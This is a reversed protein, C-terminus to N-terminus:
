HEKWQIAGDSATMSVFDWVGCHVLQKELVGSDVRVLNWRIFVNAFKRLLELVLVTAQNNGGLETIELSYLSLQVTPKRLLHAIDSGHPHLDSQISDIGDLESNTDPVNAQVLSEDVVMILKVLVADHTTLEPNHHLRRQFSPKLFSFRIMFESHGKNLNELRMM